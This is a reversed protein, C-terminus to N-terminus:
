EHAERGDFSNHTILMTGGQYERKPKCECAGSFHEKIDHTPLVYVRGMIIGAWWPKSEDVGIQDLVDSLNIKDTSAM